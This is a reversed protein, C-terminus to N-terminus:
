CAERCLRGSSPACTEEETWVIGASRMTFSPNRLTPPEPEEEYDHGHGAFGDPYTEPAPEYDLDIVEIGNASGLSAADHALLAAVLGELESDSFSRFSHSAHGNHDTMTHIASM